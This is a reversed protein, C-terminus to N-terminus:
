LSSIRDPVWCMLLVCVGKWCYIWPTIWEDSLHNNGWKGEKKVLVRNSCINQQWHHHTDISVSSWGSLDISACIKSSGKASSLHIKCGNSPLKLPIFPWTIQFCRYFIWLAFIFQSSFVLAHYYMPCPQTPNYLSELYWSLMVIILLSLHKQQQLFYVSILLSFSSKERLIFADKGGGFCIQVQFFLVLFIHFKCKEFFLQLIGSCFSFFVQVFVSKGTKPQPCIEKNKAQKREKKRENKKKKTILASLFLFSVLRGRNTSIYFVEVNRSLIPDKSTYISQFYIIASGVKKWKDDDNERQCILFKGLNGGAQFKFVTLKRFIQKHVIHTLTSKVYFFCIKKVKEM